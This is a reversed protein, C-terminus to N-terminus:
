KWENIRKILSLLLEKVEGRQKVISFQTIKMDQPHFSQTILLLGNIM